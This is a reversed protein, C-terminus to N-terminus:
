KISEIEKKWRTAEDALNLEECATVLSNMLSKITVRSLQPKIDARQAQLKAISEELGRRSEDWKGLRGDIRRM